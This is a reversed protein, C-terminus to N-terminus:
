GDARMMMESIREAKPASGREDENDSEVESRERKRRMQSM